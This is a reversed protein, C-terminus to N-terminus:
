GLNYGTVITIKVLVTEAIGHPQPASATDMQPLNEKDNKIKKNSLHVTRVEAPSKM